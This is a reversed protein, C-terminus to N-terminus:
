PVAALVAVRVIPSPGGADVRILMPMSPLPLTAVGCASMEAAAIWDCNTTINPSCGWNKNMLATYITAPVAPSYAVNVVGEEERVETTLTETVPMGPTAPYPALGAAKRNPYVTTGEDTLQLGRSDPDTMSTFPGVLINGRWAVPFTVNNCGPHDDPSLPCTALAYTRHRSQGLSPDNIITNREIICDHKAHFKNFPEDGISITWPNRALPGKEIVNDSITCKGGLQVNIVQSGTGSLLAIKNNTVINEAGGVKVAHGGSVLGIKNGDVICRGTGKSCYINHGQSDIGNREFRSNEIRVVSTPNDSNRATTDALVGMVSDHIYANRITLEGVGGLEGRVCAMNSGGFHMNSCEIGDIVTGRGRIVMAGRGDCVARRLHAGKGEITLAKGRPVIFCQEYVGPEILVADGSASADIAQQIRKFDGPDCKDSCVNRTTQAFADLAFLMLATGVVIGIWAIRVFMRAHIM